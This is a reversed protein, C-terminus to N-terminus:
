PYNEHLIKRIQELLEKTTKELVPHRLDPALETLPELVFLREQLRPHPIKLGEEDIIQSGYFLIDLDMERPANEFSRRRGLKAEIERLKEKIEHPSLSTEIEWVANLYKGQPPGGVPETEYVSSSRLFRTGPLQNVLSKAKELFRARDGLNSGVGVYIREM